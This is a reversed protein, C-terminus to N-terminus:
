QVESSIVYWELINQYTIRCLIRRSTGGCMEKRGERRDAQINAFPPWICLTWVGSGAVQLVGGMSNGSMTERGDYGSALKEVGSARGASSPLKISDNDSSSGVCWESDAGQRIYSLGCLVLCVLVNIGLRLSVQGCVHIIKFWFTFPKPDRSSFSSLSILIIISRFIWPYQRCSVHCSPVYQFFIRPWM